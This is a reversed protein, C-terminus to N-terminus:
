RFAATGPPELLEICNGFPDDVYARKVGPLVDDPRCPHGAAELRQVVAPIDDVLLGPHAKEASRFPEEVGLHLSTSGALYWRGGRGAVPAPKQLLQLGLLGAYFSDAQGEAESGAPMGLQVHDVGIVVGLVSVFAANEAM